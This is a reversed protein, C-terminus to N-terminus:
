LLCYTRRDIGDRVSLQPLDDNSLNYVQLAACATDFATKIADGHASARYFQVALERAAEDEVADRMGIVVDVLPLLANAMAASFCCNLFIVRPRRPRSAILAALADPSVSHARGDITQLLLAGNSAGHGAFHLVDPVGQVFLDVLSDPGAAWRHDFDIRQEGPTGRLKSEIRRAEAALQLEPLATPNAAVFVVRLRKEAAGPGVQVPLGATDAAGALQQRLRGINEKLRPREHELAAFLSEDIANNRQLSTVFATTLESLSMPKLSLDRALDPYGLTFFRRLESISFCTLLFDYLPRIPQNM